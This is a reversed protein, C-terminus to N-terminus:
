LGVLPFGSGICSTWRLRFVLVFVLFRGIRGVVLLFFWVVRGFRPFLIVFWLSIWGVVIRHIPRVPSSMFRYWHFPSHSASMIMPVMVSAYSM